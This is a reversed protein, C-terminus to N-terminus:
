LQEISYRCIGAHKASVKTQGILAAQKVDALEMWRRLRSVDAPTPAAAIGAPLPNGSGSQVILPIELGNSDRWYRLDPIEGEHAANRFIESVVQSEYCESDLFHLKPSRVIRRGFDADAPPLRLTLFCTDVAALWRTVTRHSIGCQSALSQQDLVHGSLARAAQLFTEFRDPDHVSVLDRLDNEIFNRRNPWPPVPMIPPVALPVFRGLMALALPQRGHREARTPHYLHLTEVPLQLRRSSALILPGSFRRDRLHEILEPARHLDDLIAPGRLRALFGAPDNRARSRDAANDLAVYTHGPFERQLLTTKGSSRPGQLCVPDGLQMARHLPLAITRHLM